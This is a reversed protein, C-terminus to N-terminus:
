RRRGIGPLLFRSIFVASFVTLSITGTMVPDLSPDAVGASQLRKISKVNREVHAENLAGRRRRFEPDITAVQERLM